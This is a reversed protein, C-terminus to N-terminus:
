LRLRAAAARHTPTSAHLSAQVGDARPLKAHRKAELEGEGHTRVVLLRM